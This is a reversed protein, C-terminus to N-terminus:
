AIPPTTIAPSSTSPSAREQLRAMERVLFLGTNYDKWDGDYCDGAIVVFAVQEDIALRVLQACAHRTAQRITEVPAGEYRELGRLPSDLHIDAAHLFKFM